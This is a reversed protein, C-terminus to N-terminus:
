KDIYMRNELIKIEERIADQRLIHSSGIKKGAELIEWKQANNNFEISTARHIEPIGMERVPSNDRYLTKINGNPFIQIVMESPVIGM